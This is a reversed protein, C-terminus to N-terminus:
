NILGNELYILYIEFEKKSMAESPDIIYFKDNTYETQRKNIIRSYDNEYKNLFDMDVFRMVGSETLIHCFICKINNQKKYNYKGTRIWISDAISVYKSTTGSVEVYIRQGNRLDFYFDPKNPEENKENSRETSKAMFGYEKMEYGLNNIFTECLNERKNSNVWESQYRDRLVNYIEAM